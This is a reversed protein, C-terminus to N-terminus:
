NTRYIEQKYKNKGDAKLIKNEKVLEEFVSMVFRRRIHDLEMEEHHINSFYTIGFYEKDLESYPYSRFLNKRPTKFKKLIHTIIEQKKENLAKELQEITYYQKEDHTDYSGLKFTTANKLVTEIEPISEPLIFGSLSMPHCYLAEKGRMMTTSRNDEKDKDPAFGIKSLITRIENDFKNLQDENMGHGWVYGAEIRFYTKIYTEMKM